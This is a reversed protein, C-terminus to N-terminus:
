WFETLRRVEANKWEKESMDEKANVFIAGLLIKVIPPILVITKMVVNMWMSASEMM